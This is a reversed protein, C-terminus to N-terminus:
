GHNLRISGFRHCKKYKMGSGCPNASVSLHIRTKCFDM